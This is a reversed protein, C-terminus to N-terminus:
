AQRRNRAPRRSSRIERVVEHVRLGRDRARRERTYDGAGPDYQQLFRVMGVPGLAETLAAVGQQRVSTPTPKSTRM